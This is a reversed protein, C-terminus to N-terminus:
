SRSHGASAPFSAGDRDAPSPGAAQRARPTDGKGWSLCGGDTHLKESVEVKPEMEDERRLAEVLCCGRVERSRTARDQTAHESRPAQLRSLSRELGSGILSYLSPREVRPPITQLLLLVGITLGSRAGGSTPWRSVYVSM